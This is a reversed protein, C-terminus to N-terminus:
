SVLKADIFVGEITQTTVFITVFIAMLIMYRVTSEKLYKSVLSVQKKVFHETILRPCWCFCTTSSAVMPRARCPTGRYFMFRNRLWRGTEIKTSRSGVGSDMRCFGTDKRTYHDSYKFSSCVIDTSATNSLSGDLVQRPRYRNHQSPVIMMRYLTTLFPEM